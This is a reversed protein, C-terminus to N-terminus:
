SSAKRYIMVPSGDDEYINDNTTDLGSTAPLGTWDDVNLLLLPRQVTLGDGSDFPTFNRGFRNGRAIARVVAYPSGSSTIGVKGYDFWNDEILADTVAATLPTVTAGQGYPGYGTDNPGHGGSNVTTALTGLVNCGKMHLNAGGDIQMGDNHTANDTGGTGGSAHNPDPSIYSLDHLYCGLIQVLTDGAPDGGAYADAAETVDIADVVHSIDCRILTFNAGAVGANAVNPTGTATLTCDELRVPFGRYAEIINGVQDAIDIKCNRLTLPGRALIRGNLDMNEILTETTVELAGISRTGRTIGPLVGTNTADPKTTGIVVDRWRTNFPLDPGGAFPRIVLRSADSPDARLRYLGTM